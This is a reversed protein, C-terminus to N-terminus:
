RLTSGVDLLLDSKILNSKLSAIENKSNEIVEQITKIEDKTNLVETKGNHTREKLKRIENNFNLIQIIFKLDREEHRKQPLSEFYPLIEGLESETKKIEEKIESLTKDTKKKEDSKKLFESKLNKKEKLLADFVKFVEEFEIIKNQLTRINNEQKKLEEFDKKRQQLKDFDEKISKLNQFKENIEDYKKQIDTQIVKADLLAKNKEEIEEKSVNEFAKLQGELQDLNTRNESNLRSTKDHLDFKHLQFIEKLMQTRATPKLELFERFQGQPIIITRKFNDYSLGLIDESNSNKLPIWEDNISEYFVVSPTYVSEFNKLNRKVERTARFLKHEYNLFDFEIYFRNSKLNMMNYTQKDGQNLRETKGYLVYSIAELISSKGSGTNGFIGFLGADTLNEFDISQSEQYSYLGEITLKKPIM